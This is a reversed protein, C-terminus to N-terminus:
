QRGEYCEVLECGVLRWGLVQRVRALRQKQLGGDSVPTLFPYIFQATGACSRFTTVLGAGEDGARSPRVLFEIIDRQDFRGDARFRVYASGDPEAGTAEVEAAPFAAAMATKIADVAKAPEDV